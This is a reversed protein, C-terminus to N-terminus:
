LDIVMPGSGKYQVAFVDVGARQKFLEMFVHQSTGAGASGYGFKGPNAKLYAILEQISNVPLTGPVVVYSPNFGLLSIPEIKEYVDNMRASLLPLVSFMSSAGILMTHGDAAARSADAAGIIGSARARTEVVVPRGRPARGAAGTNGPRCSCLPCVPRHGRGAPLARYPHRAHQSLVPSPGCGIHGTWLSARRCIEELSHQAHKPVGLKYFCHFLGLAARGQANQISSRYEAYCYAVIDVLFLVLCLFLHRFCRIAVRFRAPANGRYLPCNSHQVCETRAIARQGQVFKRATGPHVFARDEPQERRQHTLVAD